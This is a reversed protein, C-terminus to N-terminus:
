SPRRPSRRLVLPLEMSVLEITGALEDSQASLSGEFAIQMANCEIRVRRGEEVVLDVPLDNRQKGVVLFTATAAANAHNELTITVHRPYGGLEFDGIWEAELAHDVPTSRRAPDVQAAGTRALMIQATNGGQTMKGALAGNADAHADVRAPADGPARLLNGLDFSVDSGSALVDALPAGKIGLGPLIISGTWAGAADPALDVIVPLERGPIRITGEWRGELPPAASCVTAAFSLLLSLLTCRM